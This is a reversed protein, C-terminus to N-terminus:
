TTTTPAITTDATTPRTLASTRSRQRMALGEAAHTDSPSLRAAPLQKPQRDPQRVSRDVWPQGADVGTKLHPTGTHYTTRTIPQSTGPWQREPFRRWGPRMM